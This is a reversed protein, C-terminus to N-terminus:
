KKWEKVTDIIFVAVLAVLSICILTGCVALLVVSINAITPNILSNM